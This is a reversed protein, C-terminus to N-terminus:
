LGSKLAKSHDKRPTNTPDALTHAQSHLAGLKIRDDGQVPGHDYEFRETLFEVATQRLREGTCSSMNGRKQMVVVQALKEAFFRFNVM